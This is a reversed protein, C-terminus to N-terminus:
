LFSKMLTILSMTRSIILSSMPLSAHYMFAEMKVDRKTRSMIILYNDDIKYCEECVASACDMIKQGGYSYIMLDMFSAMGHFLIPITDVLSESIGVELAVVCFLVSLILYEGFIIPSFLKNMHKSLNLVKQHYEVFEKVELEHIEIKLIEFHACINM